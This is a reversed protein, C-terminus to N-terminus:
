SESISYRNLIDNLIEVKQRESLGQLSKLIVDKVSDELYKAYTYIMRSAETAIPILINMETKDDKIQSLLQEFEVKNLVAHNVILKCVKEQSSPSDENVLNLIANYTDMDVELPMGLLQPGPYNTIEIIIRM